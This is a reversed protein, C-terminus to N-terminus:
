TELSKLNSLVHLMVRQFFSVIKHLKTWGTFKVLCDGKKKGTPFFFPFLFFLCVFLHKPSCPLQSTLIFNLDLVRPLKLPNFFFNSCTSVAVNLIQPSRLLPKETSRDFWSLKVSILISTFLLGLFISGRMESWMLICIMQLSPWPYLSFLRDSLKRSVSSQKSGYPQQKHKIALQNKFFFFFLQNKPWNHMVTHHIWKWVKECYCNSYQQNDELQRLLLNM